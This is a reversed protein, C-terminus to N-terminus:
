TAEEDLLDQLVLRLRRRIRYNAQGITQPNVGSARAVEAASQGGIAVQEFAKWNQESFEPKILEMARHVVLSNEEVVEDATEEALPDCINALYRQADSGGIGAPQQNLKRFHDAIKSRVISRLWSRFSGVSRAPSFSDLNAAVARFTEQFVDSTDEDKLMSRKCWRHVLPGYLMVLQNWAQEDRCRARQLLSLSTTQPDAAVARELLRAFPNDYCAAARDDNRKGNLLSGKAILLTPRWLSPRVCM